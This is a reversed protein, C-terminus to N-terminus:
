RSFFTIKLTEPSIIRLILGMTYCKEELSSTLVRHRKSPLRSLNLFDRFGVLHVFDEVLWLEQFFGLATSSTSSLNQDTSSGMYWWLLEMGKAKPIQWWHQPTSRTICSGSLRGEGQLYGKGFSRYIVGTFENTGWTPCKNNEIQYSYANTWMQKLITDGCRAKFWHLYKIELTNNHM